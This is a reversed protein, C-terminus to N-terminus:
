RYYGEWPTRRVARRQPVGAIARWVLAGVVGAVFGGVHAMYAVGGTESTRPSLSGVSNVFQTVAWLGIVVISPVSIIFFFLLVRVHNRPFMVLYAGLVGSIAGSAGVTPVTSGPNVLIQAVAAVIGTAFYFLVFPVRGMRDEVNDGFIWLYLMNGLLHGWGGHLFMSTVLTVYHPPGIEPPLDEGLAYERPIVGWAAVLRMLQRPSDNQLMLEYLFVLVNVVVLVATVIPWRERDSNDDGLPFVHEGEGAAFSRPPAAEAAAARAM